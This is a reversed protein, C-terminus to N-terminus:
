IAQQMLAFSYLLVPWIRQHVGVVPLYEALSKMLVIQMVESSIQITLQWIVQHLSCNVNINKSAWENALARTLGLIASKSATYAPVRIGGQYSLMSAVNVIKGGGIKEFEKAFAQCMFFVVKQNITIVKDWDAEPVNIADERLIIGANNVLIDVKGFREVTKDIIGQIPETSGLDAIVELFEGGDKEILAKTEECSRRAVGAVKAGAQALAVCMGQGLGTNAGTVVAVKGKLSFKDMIM